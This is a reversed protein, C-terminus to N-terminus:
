VLSDTKSKHKMKIHQKLNGKGRIQKGCYECELIPQTPEYKSCGKKHGHGRSGCEECYPAKSCHKKHNHSKGGCEDCTFKDFDGNEWRDKLTRSIKENSEISRNFAIDRYKQKTEETHTWATFKPCEKLHPIHGCDTCLTVKYHSCRKKHSNIPSYCEDCIPMQFGNPYKENYAERAKQMHMRKDEDSAKSWREIASIKATHSDLGTGGETINYLSYGENKYQKITEKEALDLEELTEHFSLPEVKFNEQGYEQIALKINKGSGYYNKLFSKHSRKGIYIEQTILNTVKYIYGQM